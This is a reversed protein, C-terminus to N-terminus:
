EEFPTDEFVDIKPASGEFGVENWRSVANEYANKSLKSRPSFVDIYKFEMCANILCKSGWPRDEP